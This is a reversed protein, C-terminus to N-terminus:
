LSEMAEYYSSIPEKYEDGFEGNNNVISSEDPKNLNSASTSDEDQDTVDYLSWLLLNANQDSTENTRDEIKTDPLIKVSGNVFPIMKGEKKLDFDTNLIKEVDKKAGYFFKGHRIQDFYIAEPCFVVYDLIINDILGFLLFGARSGANQVICKDYGKGDFLNEYSIEEVNIGAAVAGVAQLSLFEFPHEEVLEGLNRGKTIFKKKGQTEQYFSSCSDSGGISVCEGRYGTETVTLNILFSEDKWTNSFDLTYNLVKTAKDEQSASVLVSFPITFLILLARILATELSIQM